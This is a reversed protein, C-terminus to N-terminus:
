LFAKEARSFVVSHKPKEEYQKELPKNLIKMLTAFTYVLDPPFGFDFVWFCALFAAIAEIGEVPLCVELGEV